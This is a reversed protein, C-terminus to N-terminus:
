KIRAIKFTNGIPRADMIKGYFVGIINKQVTQSWFKAHKFMLDRPIAAM